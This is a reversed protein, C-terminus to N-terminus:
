YYCKQQLFSSLIITVATAWVTMFVQTSTKKKPKTKKLLPNLGTEPRAVAEGMEGAEVGVGV